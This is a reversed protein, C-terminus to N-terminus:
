IILEVIQITGASLKGNFLSNNKSLVEFVLGPTQPGVFHVRSQLNM